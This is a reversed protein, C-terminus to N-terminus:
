ALNKYLKLYKNELEVIKEPTEKVFINYGGSITSNTHSFLVECFYGIDLSNDTHHQPYMHLMFGLRNYTNTIARMSDPFVFNFNFYKDKGSRIIFMSCTNIGLIPILLQTQTFVKFYDSIVMDKYGNSIQIRKRM